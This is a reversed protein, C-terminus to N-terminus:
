GERELRRVTDLIRPKIQRFDVGEGTSEFIARLRAKKDVVVFITSHIFLDNAGERDAAPKEIATLKLSDIALDAIQQKTGTLFLWRDPRADLKLEEIYNRFVPPTDYAPDTTLTV